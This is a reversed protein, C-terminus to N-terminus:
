IVYVDDVQNHGRLYFANCIVLVAHTRYGYTIPIHFGRYNQSRPNPTASRPLVRRMRGHRGESENMQEHWQQGRTGVCAM